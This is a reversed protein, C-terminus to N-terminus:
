KMFKLIQFLEALEPTDKYVQPSIQIVRDKGTQMYQRIYANTIPDLTIIYKPRIINIQNLISHLNKKNIPAFWCDTYIDAIKLADIYTENYKSDLIVKHIDQGIIMYKANINGRPMQDMELDKQEELITRINIYDEYLKKFNEDVTGHTTDIITYPMQQRLLFNNYFNDLVTQYHEEKVFEEGRVKIRDVITQLDAKIYAFMYKDTQRIKNEFESLYDAIYGRYIPAYVWEGDHFRDCIYDKKTDVTKLFNEYQQKGDEMNKPNSFHTIEAGIQESLMKALTSKGVADMGSIHIIM